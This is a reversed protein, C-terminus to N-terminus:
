QESHPPLRHKLDILIEETSHGDDIQRVVFARLAPFPNKEDPFMGRVRCQRLHDGLTVKNMRLDDAIKDLNIPRLLAARVDDDDTKPSRRWKAAIADIIDLLWKDRNDKGRHPPKSESNKQGNGNQTLGFQERMFKQFRPSNIEYEATAPNVRLLVSVKNLDNLGLTNAIQQYDWGAQLMRWAATRRFDGLRLDSVGAVACLKNFDKRIRTREWFRDLRPPRGSPESQLLAASGWRAALSRLEAALRPTMRITGGSGKITSQKFDVDTQRLNQRTEDYAGTDMLYILSDRFHFFEGICAALLMQEEDVTVLRDSKMRRPLSIPAVGRPIPNERLWRQRAAYTLMVRLTELYRNITTHSASARYFNGRLLSAKLKAVSASDIKGIPTAEFYLTLHRSDTFQSAHAAQPGTQPFQKWWRKTLAWFSMSPGVPVGSLTRNMAGCIRKIKAYIADREQCPSLDCGRPLALAAWLECDECFGRQRVRAKAKRRPEDHPEGCIGCIVKGTDLDVTSGSLLPVVSGQIPGKVRALASHKHCPKIFGAAKVARSARAFRGDPCMDCKLWFRQRDDPHQDGLRPQATVSAVAKSM